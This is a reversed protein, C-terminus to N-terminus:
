IDESQFIMYHTRLKLYVAHQVPCPCTLLYYSDSNDCVGAIAWDSVLVYMWFSIVCKLSMVLSFLIPTNYRSLPPRIPATISSSYSTVKLPLCQLCKKWIKPWNATLMHVNVKFCYNGLKWLATCYRWLSIKSVTIDVANEWFANKESPLSM